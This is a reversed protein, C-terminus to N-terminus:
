LKAYMQEFALRFMVNEVQSCFGLLEGDGKAVVASCLGLFKKPNFRGGPHDGEMIQELRPNGKAIEMAAAHVEDFVPHHGLTGAWFGSNQWGNGFEGPHQGERLHVFHHLLTADHRAPSNEIPAGGFLTHSDWSLPTVANHCEDLGGCALQLLACVIRPYHEPGGKSPIDEPTLEFAPTNVFARQTRRLMVDPTEYDMTIGRVDIPHEELWRFVTRMKESSAAGHEAPLKWPSRAIEAAVVMRLPCAAAQSPRPLPRLPSARISFSGAEEPLLLLALLFTGLSATLAPRHM